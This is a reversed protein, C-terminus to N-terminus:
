FAAVMMHVQGAKEVNLSLDNLEELGGALLNCGSQIPGRVFVFSLQLITICWLKFEYTVCLIIRYLM